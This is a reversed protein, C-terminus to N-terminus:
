AFNNQPETVRLLSQPYAANCCPNCRRKVEGGAEEIADGLTERPSEVGSGGGRAQPFRKACGFGGYARFSYPKLLRQRRAIKRATLTVRAAAGATKASESLDM